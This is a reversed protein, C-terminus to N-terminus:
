PHWPRQQQWRYALCQRLQQVEKDFVVQLVAEHGAQVRAVLQDSRVNSEFQAPSVSDLVHCHWVHDLHDALVGGLHVLQVNAMRLSIIFVIPMVCSLRETTFQPSSNRPLRRLQIAM